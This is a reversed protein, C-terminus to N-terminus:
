ARVVSSRYGVVLRHEGAFCDLNVQDDGGAHQDHGAGRDGDQLEAQLFVGFM